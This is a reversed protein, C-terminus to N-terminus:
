GDMTKFVEFLMQDVVEQAAKGAKSDYTYEVFHEGPISKRKNGLKRSGHKWGFEQFAGYFDEGQFWKKSTGVLIKCYGDKNVKVKIKLSKKLTGHEVPVMSQASAFLIQGGKKIAKM